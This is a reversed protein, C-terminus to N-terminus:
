KSAGQRWGCWCSNLAKIAFKHGNICEYAGDICNGDHDHIVGYPLWKNNFREEAGRRGQGIAAITTILGLCKVDKGKAGCYSCEVFSDLIMQEVVNYM